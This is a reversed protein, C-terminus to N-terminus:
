MSCMNDELYCASGFGAIKITPSKSKTSLVINKIKIDFHVIQKTHIDKLGIAIQLFIQLVQEESLIEKGLSVSYDALNGGAKYKTVIHVSGNEEFFDVIALVYNSKCCQIAEVESISFNSARAHYIESQVIKIVVQAGLANHAALM